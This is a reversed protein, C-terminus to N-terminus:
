KWVVKAAWIVARWGDAIRHCFSFSTEPFQERAWRYLDNVVGAQAAALSGWKELDVPAMRDPIDDFLLAFARCGLEMMQDLRSRLRELDATNTYRIDLGPALGYIFHIGSTECNRILEGLVGAEEATYLERWAARHKLDDKPAYFYTNLGWASMWRLLELREARSWPAGYFGEIVGAIFESTGRTTM